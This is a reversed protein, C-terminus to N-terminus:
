ASDFERGIRSALREVSDRNTPCVCHVIAEFVQRDPVRPRGGKSHSPPLPILPKVREWWEDSVKWPHTRRM